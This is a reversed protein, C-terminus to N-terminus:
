TTIEMQSIKVTPANGSSAVTRLTHRDVWPRMMRSIPDLTEGRNMNTRDRRGGPDQEQVSEHSELEQVIARWRRHHEERDGRQSQEDAAAVDGQVGCKAPGM